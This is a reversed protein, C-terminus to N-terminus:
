GMTIPVLPMTDYGFNDIVKVVITYGGPKDHRHTASPLELQQHLALPCSGPIDLLIEVVARGRQIASGLPWCRKVLQVKMRM